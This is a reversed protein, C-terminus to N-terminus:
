TAYRSDASVLYFGHSVTPLVDLALPNHGVLLQQQLSRDLRVTTLQTRSGSEDSKNCAASVSLWLELIISRPDRVIYVGKFPEQLRLLGMESYEEVQFPSVDPFYHLSSTLSVVYRSFTQQVSWFKRNEM